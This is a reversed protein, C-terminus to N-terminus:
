VLSCFCEKIRILNRSLDFYFLFSLLFQNSQSPSSTMEEPLITSWDEKPLHFVQYLDLTLINVLKSTPSSTFISDLVISEMSLLNLGLSIGFYYSKKQFDLYNYNDKARVQSIAQTGIFCVALLLM